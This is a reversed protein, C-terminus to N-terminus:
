SVCSKNKITLLNIKAMLSDMVADDPQASISHLMKLESAYEAYVDTDEITDIVSLQETTSFITQLLEGM